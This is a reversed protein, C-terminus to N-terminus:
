PLKWEALNAEAPTQLAQQLGAVTVEPVGRTITPYRQAARCTPSPGRPEEAGRSRVGRCLFWRTLHRAAACLWSVSCSVLDLSISVSLPCRTLWTGVLAVFVIVFSRTDLSVSLRFRAFPFPFVMCCPM